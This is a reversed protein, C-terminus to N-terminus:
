FYSILLKTLEELNVDKEFLESATELTINTNYNEGNYNIFIFPVFNGNESLTVLKAKEAIFDDKFESVSIQNYKLISKIVITIQTILKAKEILEM